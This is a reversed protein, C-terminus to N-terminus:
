QPRLPGPIFPILSLVFMKEKNSQGNKGKLVNRMEIMGKEKGSGLLWFYVCVTKANIYIVM